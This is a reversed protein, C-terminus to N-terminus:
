DAPGVPVEFFWEDQWELGRRRAEKRIRAMQELTPELVGREWKSVTGQTTGAIEAFVAQPIKLVKQRIHRLTTMEREFINAYAYRHM